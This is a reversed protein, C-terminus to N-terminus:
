ALRWSNFPAREPLQGGVEVAATKGVKLFHRELEAFSKFSRYVAGLRAVDEAERQEILPL